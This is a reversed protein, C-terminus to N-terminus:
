QSATVPRKRRDCDRASRKQLSTTTTSSRRPRPSAHIHLYCCPYYKVHIGENTLAWDGSDFDFEDPDAPGYLDWFGRDGSIATQDATFGTAALRTATVGSRACLGAHLPKTMSGVNRKTCAATSATVNLAHQTQNPSLNLLSAGAATAGFAGFTATAHWGAEYHDPSIPAALACEVEFGVAYATVLDRGSANAATALALLPPILTVSPHGDMAWSLDDYDFTHRATGTCMAREEPSAASTFGLITPVDATHQDVGAAKFVSTGADDLAGGLTVGVTDLFVRRITERAPIPVDDYSLTATFDALTAEPAMM